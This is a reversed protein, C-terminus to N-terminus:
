LDILQGLNGFWYSRCVLSEDFVVLKCVLNVYWISIMEPSLIGECKLLLVELSEKINHFKHIM